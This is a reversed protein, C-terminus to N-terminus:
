KLKRRRAAFACMSLMLCVGSTPEPVITYAIDDIAAQRTRDTAVVVFRDIPLTSTLTVVEDSGVVSDILGGGADFIELRNPQVSGISGLGIAMALEYVPVTFRAEIPGFPFQSRLTSLLNESSGATRNFSADNLIENQDQVGPTPLFEIGVAAYQDTIQVPQDSFLNPANIPIDDLTGLEGDPGPFTEFDILVAQGADAGTAAFAVIACYAIRLACRMISLNM